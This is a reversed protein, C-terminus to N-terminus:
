QFHKTFWNTYGVVISSTLEHTTVWDLELDIGLRDFLHLLEQNNEMSCIPDMRGMSLYVKKHSFDQEKEVELPYLPAMFIGFNFENPQHLLLHIGINAGNSFGFLIVKDMRFGYEQSSKLIFERLHLMERDLSDLDYVGEAKRAFFRLAGNENVNGRISLINSSTKLHELAPLLSTENGGTGHLVVFTPAESSTHHYIHKM